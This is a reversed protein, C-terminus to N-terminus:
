ANGASERRDEGDAGVQHAPRGLSPDMRPIGLGALAARLSVGDEWVAIASRSGGVLCACVRWTAVWGSAADVGDSVKSIYMEWNELHYAERRKETM